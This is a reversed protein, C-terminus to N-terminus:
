YPDALHIKTPSIYMIVRNREIATEIAGTAGHCTVNDQLALIWQHIEIM